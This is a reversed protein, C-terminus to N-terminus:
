RLKVCIHGGKAFLHGNTLEIEKANRLARIEDRWILKGSNACHYFVKGEDNALLLKNSDVSYMPPLNKQSLQWKQAFVRLDVQTLSTATKIFLRDEFIKGQYPYNYEVRFKGAVPLNLQALEKCSGNQADLTLLRQEDDIVLIQNSLYVPNTLSTVQKLWELKSEKLSYCCISQEKSVFYARGKVIDILYGIPMQLSENATLKGTAHDVLILRQCNTFLYDDDRYELYAIGARTAHARRAFRSRGMFVDLM